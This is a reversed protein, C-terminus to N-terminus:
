HRNQVARLTAQMEGYQQLTTVFNANSVPSMAGSNEMAAQCAVIVAKRSEDAKSLLAARAKRTSEFKGEKTWAHAVPNEKLMETAKETLETLKKRAEALQSKAEALEKENMALSKEAIRRNEDRMETLTKSASSLAQKSEATEFFFSFAREDEMIEQLEFIRYCM